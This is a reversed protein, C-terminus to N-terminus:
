LDFYSSLEGTRRVDLTACHFSGGFPYYNEFHCPIPEFGWQELAKITPEQKQEVIIRKQDLMLVNMNMWISVPQSAQQENIVPDPVVLIDWKRVFAPLTSVDLFEPNVLLKGPALPMFTTDIHMAQRCRTKIEHVRYDNGLHRRLWEIGLRNTVHSRQVFIDRGCRVFDAADFVPEFETSVFPERDPKLGRPADTDYLEDLLEPKPAAVWRAGQRFYEKLLSRYPHSEFYRNRDAMPAEILQDGIVLMVDRPNAMCFGCANQWHPTKFSASFDYLEPRRVVVGAAELIAIFSDLDRQAAGIQEPPFPYAYDGLMDLFELLEEADPPMTAKIIPRWSPYMAGELRGVIVEELPDWENYSSVPCTLGQVALDNM